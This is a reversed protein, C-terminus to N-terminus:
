LFGMTQLTKYLFQRDIKDFAKEQYIQLIYFPINKLDITLFLNNFIARRPISCNQEESIIYPLM